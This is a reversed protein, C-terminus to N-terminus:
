TSISCDLLVNAYEGISSGIVINSSSATYIAEIQTSTLGVTENLYTELAEIKAQRQRAEQEWGGRNM